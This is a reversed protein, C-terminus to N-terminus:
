KLKDMLAYGESMTIEGAVVILGIQWCADDNTMKGELAQNVYHQAEELATM